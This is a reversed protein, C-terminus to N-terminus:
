NCQQQTTDLSQDTKNGFSTAPFVNALPKHTVLFQTSMPSAKIHMRFQVPVGALQVPASVMQVPVSVLQVPVSVLQVPVSVLQVPVSVLQVPASVLVASILDNIKRIQTVHKPNTQKFTAGGQDM